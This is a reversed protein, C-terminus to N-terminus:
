GTRGLCELVMDSALGADALGKMAERSEMGLEITREIFGSEALHEKMAPSSIGIETLREELLELSTANPFRQVGGTMAVCEPLPNMDDMMRPHVFFPMSYRETNQGLDVVRHLGSRFLGNTQNQLKDGVNVIFANDPAVVTVWEGDPSFVQLGQATTRPIVTYYCIDTHERAWFADAPPNAPYYVARSLTEGERTRETIFNAKQGIAVSLAEELPLVRDMLENFLAMYPGALDMETPWINLFTEGGLAAIQEESFEHGVHYMEKVDWQGKVREAKGPPSYGRQGGNSPDCCRMKTELDQQYFQAVAAYASDLINLDIGTNVLAFFGVHQCAESLDSIFEARTEPNHYNHLDLVPITPDIAALQTFIALSALFRKM